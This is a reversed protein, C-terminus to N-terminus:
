RKVIVQIKGPGHVGLVLEMEIDGTRSPGTIFCVNAHQRLADIGEARRAAVWSEIRPVIQDLTIVAIHLPPLVTPLRGKGAGTTVILTGTAAAAADAGTLGAGAREASTLTAERFEDHTEVQLIDIGAEELAERLGKVPIHAFDWALVSQVGAKQLLTVIKSRAGSDGRVKFVDGRLATLERTFRELLAEADTEEQLTVDLYMSPRPPADPFPRRASRLKNLIADRSSPM